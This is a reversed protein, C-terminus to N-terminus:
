NYLGTSAATTCYESSQDVATCYHKSYITMIEIVALQFSPKKFLTLNGVLTGWNQDVFPSSLYLDNLSQHRQKQCTSSTTTPNKTQNVKTKKVNKQLSCVGSMEGMDTGTVLYLWLRTVISQNLQYCNFNLSGARSGYIQM